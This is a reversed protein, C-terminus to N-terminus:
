SAITESNEVGSPLAKKLTLVTGKKQPEYNVEHFVENILFTGLGGPRIDDLERGKIKEIDVPTGEDKLRIILDDSESNITFKIPGPKGDYAYRYVNTVAEDCALVIHGSAIDDFGLYSCWNEIFERGRSLDSPKCSLYLLPPPPIGRWDLFLISADDHQGANGTFNQWADVAIDLTEDPRAKTPLSKIFAEESYEEEAQNRAETIGDSYLLWQQGPKIEFSQCSYEFSPLIGLPVQNTVEPQHWKGHCFYIPGYQGAACVQISNTHSDSLMFTAGIFRGSQLDGTLEDNLETVWSGLHNQLSVSLILRKSLAQIKATVRSMTLAAPIGKGTVDGLCMLIQHENLPIVLTFDGGVERAPFYRTHVQCSQYNQSQEPLFSQQIEKALELEQQARANEMEREQAQIRLLASVILTGFVELIREDNDDFFDRNAPNLIQFVGLAQDGNLLPTTLMAKTVFGTKKDVGGYHRPDNKPDKINITEKDHFVAGAIGKGKPIRTANLMPAKDGRASHIVLEGTSLDPLFISCAECDMIEQSRSLIENLAGDLDLARTLSRAVDLLQIYCETSQDNM